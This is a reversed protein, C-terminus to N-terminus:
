KGGPQLCAGATGNCDNSMTLRRDPEWYWCLRCGPNVARDYQANPRFADGLWRAIEAVLRSGPERNSSRHFHDLRGSRFRDDHKAKSILTREPPYRRIEVM